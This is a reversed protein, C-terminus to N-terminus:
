NLVPLGMPVISQNQFLSTSKSLRGVKSLDDHRTGLNFGLIKEELASFLFCINVVGELGL